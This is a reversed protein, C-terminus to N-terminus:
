SNKCIVLTVQAVLTQSRMSTFCKADYVGKVRFGKPLNINEAAKRIERSRERYTAKDRALDENNKKALYDAMEEDSIKKRGGSRVIINLPM